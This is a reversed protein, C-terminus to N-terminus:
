LVGCVLCFIYHCMTISYPFKQPYFDRIRLTEKDVEIFDPKMTTYLIRSIENELTFDM